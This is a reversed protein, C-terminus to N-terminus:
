INGKNQSFNTNVDATSESELDVEEVLKTPTLDPEETDEVDEDEIRKLRLHLIYICYMLSVISVFYIGEKYLM